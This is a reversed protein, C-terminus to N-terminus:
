GMGRRFEGHASGDRVNENIVVTKRELRTNILEAEKNSHQHLLWFELAREVARSENGHKRKFFRSYVHWRRSNLFSNELIQMDYVSNGVAGTFPYDAATTVAKREEKEGGARVTPARARIGSYGTFSVLVPPSSDIRSRLYNIKARVIIM